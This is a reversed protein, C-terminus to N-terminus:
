SALIVDQTWVKTVVIPVRGNSMGPYIKVEKRVQSAITGGFIPDQIIGKTKLEEKNPRTKLYKNLQRKIFGFDKM